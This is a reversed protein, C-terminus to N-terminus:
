GTGARGDVRHGAPIGREILRGPSAVDERVVRGGPHGPPNLSGPLPAAIADFEPWQIRWLAEGRETMWHWGTHARLASLIVVGLREPVVWRFLVALAPLVVLLVLVQGAEVGVNFSSLARLLYSGAFQLDQKLAFSFGFGHVFGFVGAIV